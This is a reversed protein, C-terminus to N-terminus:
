VLVTLTNAARTMATYMWKNREEPKWSLHGDDILLVNDWQSGQSKHVTIAYGFDWRFIQGGEKSSAYRNQEIVLNDRHTTKDDRTKWNDEFEGMSIRMTPTTWVDDSDGDEVIVRQTFCRHKEDINDLPTYDATHGILGNYLGFDHYNRLCLMKIGATYPYDEHDFGHLNLLYQNMAHRTDHTGVLIQDSKMMCSDDYEDMKLKKVTGHDGMPIPLGNRVDKSLRIIPNELAQRHIETLFFDPEGKTFFGSGAVPPLQAPDGLVLIKTHFLLLDKAVAANIMSCEDLVLLSANRLDSFENLKFKLEGDITDDLSYILQHITTARRMGKRRMVMAAKGTFSGYLVSRSDPDLGCNEVAARVISTKGTGAFGGLYFFQKGHDSTYWDRISKIASAQHDTLTITM